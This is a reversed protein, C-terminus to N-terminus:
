HEDKRKKCTQVIKLFIFFKSFGAIDQHQYLIVLVSPARQMSRGLPGDLGIGDTESIAKMAVKKSSPMILHTFEQNIHSLSLSIFLNEIEQGVLDWPEM